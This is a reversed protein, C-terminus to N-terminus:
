GTEKIKINNKIKNNNQQTQNRKGQSMLSAIENDAKRLDQQHAGLEQKLQQQLSSNISGVYNIVNEARKLVQEQQQNITILEKIRSELQAIYDQEEQEILARFKEKEPMDYMEIFLKKAHVDMNNWAGNIFLANMLNNLQTKSEESGQMAKVVVNFKIDEFLSSNYREVIIKDTPYKNKNNPLSNLTQNRIITADDQEYYFEQESYYLKMFLELTKGIEEEFDWLKKRMDIIPMNQQAQNLSTAVGSLEKEPQGLFVDNTQNVTKAFQFIRESLDIVGNSMANMGGLRKIGDGAASHDVITQGPEDTIVQNRLADKRVVYKDWAVNQVNLLQMAFLHNIYRQTNISDQVDSVGYISSDSDNLVLIHVPFRNFKISQYDDYNNNELDIDPMNLKEPDIGDNVEDSIYTEEDYTNKKDKLDIKHKRPNLPNNEVIVVDKTTLTYYVEDDVRFYKLYTTVLMSDNIETEDSYENSDPKILKKKEEDKVKNRLAGISKRSRIIIYKQSQIDTNGPNSLSINKLQIYEERIGGVYDGYTGKVKEDYYLHNFATGKMLAEKTYKSRYREHKMEKLLYEGFHTFFMTNQNSNNTQFVLKTPISTINSAKSNIQLKIINLTIRPLRKTNRTAEPWQKGYYFDTCKESNSLYGNTSLYNYGKNFEEVIKRAKEDFQEM